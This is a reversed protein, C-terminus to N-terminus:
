DIYPSGNPNNSANYLHKTHQFAPLSSNIFFKHKAHHLMNNKNPYFNSKRCWYSSTLLRQTQRHAPKHALCPAGAVLAAALPPAVVLVKKKTV